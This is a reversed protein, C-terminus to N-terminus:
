DSPQPVIHLSPGPAERRAQFMESAEDDRVVPVIIVDEGTQRNAATAAQHSATPRCTGGIRDLVTICGATAHRADDTETKGISLTM